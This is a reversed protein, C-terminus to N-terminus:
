PEISYAATEFLFAIEISIMKQQGNFKKHHCKENVFVARQFACHHSTLHLLLSFHRFSILTRSFDYLQILRLRLTEIQKWRFQFQENSTIYFYCHLDIKSRDVKACKGRQIKIYNSRNDKTSKILDTAPVLLTIRLVCYKRKKEHFKETELLLLRSAKSQKHEHFFPIFSFAVLLVTAFTLISLSLALSLSLAVISWSFILDIKKQQYTQHITLAKRSTNLLLFNLLFLYTSASLFLNVAFTISFCLSSQKSQFISKHMCFARINNTVASHSPSFICMEQDGRYKSLM